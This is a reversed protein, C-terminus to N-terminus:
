QISVWNIKCLPSIRFIELKSSLAHIPGYVTPCIWGSTNKLDIVLFYISIDVLPLSNKWHALMPVRQASDCVRTYKAIFYVFSHSMKSTQNLDYLTKWPHFM